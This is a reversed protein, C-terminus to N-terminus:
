KLRTSRSRDPDMPVVVVSDVYTKLDHEDLLFSIRAKWIVYNSAGELQDQDQLAHSEMEALSIDFQRREGRRQQQAPRCMATLTPLDAVGQKQEAFSFEFKKAPLGRLFFERLSTERRGELM